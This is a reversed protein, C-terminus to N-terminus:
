WTGLFIYTWYRSIMTPLKTLMRTKGRGVYKRLPRKRKCGQFGKLIRPLAPTMSRTIRFTPTRVARPTKRSKRRVSSDSLAARSLTIPADVQVLVIAKPPGNVIQTTLLMAAEARTYSVTFRDGISLEERERFNGDAGIFSRDGFVRSFQPLKWTSPHAAPYNTSSPGLIRIMKGCFACNVIHSWTGVYGDRYIGKRSMNWNLISYPSLLTAHYRLTIIEDIVKSIPHNAQVNLDSDLWVGRITWDKARDM